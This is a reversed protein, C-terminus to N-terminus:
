KYFALYFLPFGLFYIAFNIIALFKIRNGRNALSMKKVFRSDIIEAIIYVGYVLISGIGRNGYYSGKGINTQTLIYGAIIFIIASIINFIEMAVLSKPGSPPLQLETDM